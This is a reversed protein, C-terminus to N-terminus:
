QVPEAITVLRLEKTLTGQQIVKDGICSVLTLRETLTPYLLQVENPRVQVQQTVQYRREKGDETTVMVEAGPQLEHIREFPAPVAPSDTWRLVHGWFIVNSREGPRASKTFWGVDHKPVIPVNREDVGVAVPTFDLGLAPIVLRSPNAPSSAATADAAPTPPAVEPALAPLDSMESATESAAPGATPTATSMPTASPRPTSTVAVPTPAGSEEATAMARPGTTEIEVTVGGAGCAALAFILSLLLPSCFMFRRM